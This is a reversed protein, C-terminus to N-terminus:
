DAAVLGWVKQAGPVIEVPLGLYDPVKMGVFVTGVPTGLDRMLHEYASCMMQWRIPNRGERRTTDLAALTLTPLPESGPRDPM